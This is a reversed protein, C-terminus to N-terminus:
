LIKGARIGSHWSSTKALKASWACKASGTEEQRNWIPVSSYPQRDAGGWRCMVTHTHMLSLSLSSTHLAAESSLHKTNTEAGYHLLLSCDSLSNIVRKGGTQLASASPKCNDRSSHTHTHTPMQKFTHTDCCKGHKHGAHTLSHVLFTVIPTEVHVFCNAAAEKDWPHILIKRQLSASILGTSLSPHLAGWPIVCWNNKGYYNGRFHILRLKALPGTHTHTHRCAYLRSISLCQCWILKINSKIHTLSVLCWKDRDDPVPHKRIM